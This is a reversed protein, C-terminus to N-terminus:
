KHDIRYNAEIYEFSVAENPDKVLTLNRFILDEAASEQLDKVPKEAGVYWGEHPGDFVRLRFKSRATGVWMGKREDISGSKPREPGSRSTVEIVWRTAASKEKELYIKVRPQSQDIALLKGNRTRLHPASIYWVPEMRKNTPIPNVSGRALVVQGDNEALLEGESSRLSGIFSKVQIAGTVCVTLVAALLCVYRIKM